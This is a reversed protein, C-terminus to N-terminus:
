PAPPPFQALIKSVAGYVESQGAALDRLAGVATGRWVLQKLEPDVFDLILTGEKYRYVEVRHGVWRGGPGYRYGHRTVDVRDQAGIYYAILFDPRDLTAKRYGRELLEAEVASRLRKEFLSHEASHGLPAQHEQKVWDFTEYRTFDVDRDYDVTVSISSCLTLLTALPVAVYTFIKRM